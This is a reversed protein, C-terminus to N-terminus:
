NPRDKDDAKKRKLFQTIRIPTVVTHNCEGCCQGKKFPEANHGGYWGNADPTIKGKCIVCKM